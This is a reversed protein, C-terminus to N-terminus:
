HSRAGLLPRRLLAPGSEPLGRGCGSRAIAAAPVGPARGAGGAGEAAGGGKERYQGPAWEGFVGGRAEEAAPFPRRTHSARPPWPSRALGKGSM